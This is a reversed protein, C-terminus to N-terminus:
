AAQRTVAATDAAAPLRKLIATAACRTAGTRAVDDALETLERRVDTLSNEDGLWEDLHQLMRNRERQPAYGILTEPLIVRGAILNPLTISILHSFFLDYMMRNRLGMWYVVHAPTRRALMELSVSGSVMLCCEATAIIESARGVHYHLPLDADEPGLMSRCLDEFEARYCAVHFSVEPHRQHLERLVTVMHPWNRTVEHTRSGPLIGMIRTPQDRLTQCFDEALPHAAVEDFFPHGVYMAAVGRDRYWEYEFPLACLVYDVYKRIKRIRWGAWAWMQPPMYYFVPIGARKAKRAIWFNFGPFDILVVADPRQEEFYRGAQGVLRIFQWLLPIVALVGMVALDTLRYELRCGEEQMLPGGFGSFEVGPHQRRLEQILHAAHQDGSPEGVSFFIHM